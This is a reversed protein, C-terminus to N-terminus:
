RRASVKGGRAGARDLAEITAGSPPRSAQLRAAVQEARRLVRLVNRRVLKELDPDSWGRRALEAVLAPCRSVDELGDPALGEMGDFDSGIGVHDAGAVKRLHDMHNAVDALTAKGGRVLFGPVFTAMVVGGNRPLLRLVEDPVNRPHDHLARANSHSFIVPAESVRLADLMTDPSTHSLDVL